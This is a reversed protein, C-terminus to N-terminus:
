KRSQQSVAAHASGVGYEHIAASSAHAHSNAYAGSEPEFPIEMATLMAGLSRAMEELAPHEQILLFGVGVQLPVHRNGLHYAVRLLDSPNPCEIRVVREPAARIVIVRGDSALLLDGGLLREGRPLRLSVEEGSALSMRLWRKQRAEFTLELTEDVTESASLRKTIEIM